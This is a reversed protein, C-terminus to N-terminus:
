LKQEVFNGFNVNEIHVWRVAYRISYRKTKRCVFYPSKWKSSAGAWILWKFSYTLPNYIEYMTVFCFNNKERLFRLWRKSNNSSIWQKNTIKLSGSSAQESCVQKEPWSLRCDWKRCNAIVLKMHNNNNWLEVFSCLESHHLFNAAM